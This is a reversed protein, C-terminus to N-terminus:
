PGPITSGAIMKKSGKKNDKRKIWAMGNDM